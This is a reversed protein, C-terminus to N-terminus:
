YESGHQRVRPRAARSLLQDEVAVGVPEADNEVPKSRSLEDAFATHRGLAHASFSVEKLQMRQPPFRRSENLYAWASRWAQLM